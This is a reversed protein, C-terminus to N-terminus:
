KSSINLNTILDASDLKCLFQFFRYLIPVFYDLFWNLISIM